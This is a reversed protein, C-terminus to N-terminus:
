RGEPKRSVHSRDYLTFIDLTRNRGAGSLVALKVQGSGDLDGAALDLAPGGLNASEWRKAFRRAVADWGFGIARGPTSEDGKFFAARLGYAPLNGITVIDPTPAPGPVVLVRRPISRWVALQEATADFNKGRYDPHRPTQAFGLMDVVGLDEESEWRPQGQEDYVRLRGDAAVLALEARGDGDLDGRAFAYLSPVAGPLPFRPGAQYRGNRWELVEVPGEVAEYFGLSQALLIPPQGPRRLVRLHRHLGTVLPEVRGKAVEVVSSLLANEIQQQRPSSQIATLVIEDRGNGNIDAADVYLYTTFVPLPDGVAIPELARGTLRYVIVQRDTVGIIEPRGDGDVDGLAIANVPHPLSLTLRDASQEVRQIAKVPEVPQIGPGYPAPAPAPSSGPAAPRPPPAEALVTKWVAQRQALTQGTLLSRVRLIVEVGDPGSVLLPAITLGYEREQQLRQRRWREAQAEDARVVRLRRDTLLELELWRDLRPAHRALEPHDGAETQRLIVTIRSPWAVRDGARVGGESWLVVARAIGAQAEAIRVAGVTQAFGGTGPDPERVLLYEADPPPAVGPFSVIVDAPGHVSTVRGVPRVLFLDALLAHAAEQM